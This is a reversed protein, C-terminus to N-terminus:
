RCVHRVRREALFLSSFLFSLCLSSSFEVETKLARMQSDCQWWLDSSFKSSGGLDHRSSFLPSSLPPIGATRSACTCSANQAHSMPLWRPPRCSQRRLLQARARPFWMKRMTSRMRARLMTMTTMSSSTQSKTQSTKQWSQRSRSSREITISALPEKRM